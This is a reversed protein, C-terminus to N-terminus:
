QWKNIPCFVLDLKSYIFYEFLQNRSLSEVSSIGNKKLFESVFSLYRPIQVVLMNHNFSTMRALFVEVASAENGAEVLYRKVQEKTFPSITVFRYDPFSAPQRNAFVWRSTVFLSLDPRATSIHDLKGLVSPFLHSQVEDLGDLFLAAEPSSESRLFEDILLMASKDRLHILRTPIGLNALHREVKQLFWTKGVGPEGVILNRKSQVVEPVGVITKESWSYYPGYTDIFEKAESFTSHVHVTPEIYPTSSM